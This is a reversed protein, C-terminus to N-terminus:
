FNEKSVTSSRRAILREVNRTREVVVVNLVLVNIILEELRPVRRVYTFVYMVAM